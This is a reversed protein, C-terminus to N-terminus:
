LYQGASHPHFRVRKLDAPDIYAEGALTELDQFCSVVQAAFM